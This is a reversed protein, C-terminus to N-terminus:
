QKYTNVQYYQEIFPLQSTDSLRLEFGQEALTQKLEATTAGGEFLEVERTRVVIWNFFQLSEAQNNQFLTVEFGQVELVLINSKTSIKELNSKVLDDFSQTKVKLNELKKVNPFYELLMKDAPLLSNFRPNAFITASREAPTDAIWIQQATVNDYSKAKTKLKEFLIENPKIAFINECNLDQYIPLESGVGAGIHVVTSIPTNTNELLKSLCALM